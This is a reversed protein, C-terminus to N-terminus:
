NKNAYEVFQDVYVKIEALGKKWFGIDEIDLDLTKVVDNASVKGTISLLNVYKEEFNDTTKSVNLLALAFLQGFAYPYNYFSFGSSYYHGKAAWMLEHKNIVADGYTRAQADKMLQTFEDASLEGNKRANFASEEFYFRSLIDICVQSAGILIQDIIAIAEEGEVTKLVEQYIIQESFISATEAVTMPYSTFLPKEQMVISDHFAHGLEHALTSVSDFSFDYNALIRSQKVLPFSTDYAGGVKGSRPEADIWNEDFARTAFAAMKPSFKAYSSVIVEKADEFSYKKNMSGLPAILDFWELKELGLLKAKANFYSAFMERSDDLTQILANLAKMTIRSQFASQEVPSNWNRRKGLTLVTGKIGNLAAAIATKHENWVAKEKEYSEKRIARDPNSADSRLNIVSKGDVGISSSVSDYLKEFASVGSRALDSALNEEEISMIHTSNELMEELLYKYEALRPDNFEDKYSQINSLLLVEVANAALLKEELVSLAKIYTPNSTDTSILANVYSNLTSIHLYLENYVEIVSYLNDHSNLLKTLEESLQSISNLSALYDESETSKYIPSLDWRPLKM